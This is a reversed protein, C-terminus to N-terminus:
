ELLLGEKEPQIATNIWEHRNGAANPLQNRGTLQVAVTSESKHSADTVITV